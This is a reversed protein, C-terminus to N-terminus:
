MNAHGSRMSENFQPKTFNLAAELTAEYEAARALLQPTAAAFEGDVVMLGAGAEDAAMRLLDAETTNLYQADRPDAIWVPRSEGLVGSLWYVKRLLYQLREADTTETFLFRKQWRSYYRTTVPVPQRNGSKLFELQGYDVTKRVANYVFSEAYPQEMAPVIEAFTLTVTTPASTQGVAASGFGPTVPSVPPPPATVTVWDGGSAPLYANSGAADPVYSVNVADTGVPLSGGPITINASGNVMTAPLSTYGGSAQLTVSGTPTPNGGGGNVAATLTIPQTSAVRPLQPTVTVTPTLLATSTVMVTNQGINGAYSNSSAADPTYAATLSINAIIGAGPPIAGPIMSAAPVMFTVSGNVLATPGFTAPGAYLIVTGTPVPNGGAAQVTITVTLTQALAVSPARAVMVTPSYLAQGSLAVQQTSGAVNLSNDTVTLTGNISGGVAQPTFNFGLVCNAGPALVTSATCTTTGPDSAFNNSSFTLASVTLPSTGLNTLIDSFGGSETSGPPAPDPFAIGAAQSRPLIDLFDGSFGFGDDAFFDVVYMNSASDIAIGSPATFGGAFNTVTTYGGAALIEWVGNHNTSSDTVYVNGSADLVLGDPGLFGSGLVKITPSAPIAGNVALIEKVNAGDAFFVNGSGDVALGLPGSLGSAVTTTTAYGSAATMEKLSQTNDTVFVNGSGDVAVGVPLGLNGTLTKTTSYGGSAPIETIQGPQSVDAVFLNGAGDVAIGWIGDHKGPLQKVCAAQVCGAPVEVMTDGFGAQNVNGVFIDGAGDVAVGRDPFIVNGPFTRTSNQQVQFGAQPGTGSGELYATGLTNGLQDQLVVAGNRTGAFKPAFTVTVTCTAGVAYSQGAKCSGGSVAYDMGAAGMTLAQPAGITEAASFTATLTAAASTQGIAVSGFNQNASFQATQAGAGVALACVMGLGALLKASMERANLM